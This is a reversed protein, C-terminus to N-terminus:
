DVKTPRKRLPLQESQRRAPRQSCSDDSRLNARRLQRAADARVVASLCFRKWKGFRPERHEDVTLTAAFGLKARLCDFDSGLRRSIIITNPDCGAALLVRAMALFPESSARVRPAGEGILFAASRGAKSSPSILVVIETIIRQDGTMVPTAPSPTEAIKRLFRQM